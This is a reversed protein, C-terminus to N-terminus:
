SAYLTSRCTYEVNFTKVARVIQVNLHVHVGFRAVYFAFFSFVVWDTDGAIALVLHITSQFVSQSDLLAVRFSSPYRQWNCWGDIMPFYTKGLWCNKNLGHKVYWFTKQRKTVNQRPGSSPFKLHRFRQVNLVNRENKCNASMYIAKAFGVHHCNKQYFLCTKVSNRGETWDTLHGLDFGKTKM